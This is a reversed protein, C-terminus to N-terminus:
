FDYVNETYLKSLELFFFEKSIKGNVPFMEVYM